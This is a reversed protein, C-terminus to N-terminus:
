NRPQPQLTPANRRVAVIEAAISVAIEAPTDANIGLGIPAHIHGLRERDIHAAELAEFAARVRRRSGIMGIYRPKTSLNLLRTLCDFDWRHGRTVLAIYTRGDIVVDAFPDTVFDARRVEVGEAFREETAFEERDDLVTVRFDLMVGLAALPVAIHGAGVVILRETPTHTELYLTHTVAGLTITRSLASGGSIERALELAAADLAPDGFSGRVSGDAFVLVRSAPTNEAVRLIVSVSEGTEQVALAAAAADAATVIDSL